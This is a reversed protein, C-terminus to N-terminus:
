HLFYLGQAINEFTHAYDDIQSTTTTCTLIYLNNDTLGMYQVLSISVPTGNPMNLVADYNIRALDQGGITTLRAPLIPGDLSNGLQQKLESISQKVAENLDGNSPRDTKLVNINNAFGMQLSASWLDFAYFKIGKSMMESIQGSMASGFVPNAAALDNVVAQLNEKSLNFEKWGPPLSIAFGENDFTYLTWDRAVPKPEAPPKDTIASNSKSATAGACGALVMPVVLLAFALRLVPASLKM